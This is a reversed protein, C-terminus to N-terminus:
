LKTLGEVRPTCPLEQVFATMPRIISDGPVPLALSFMNYKNQELHPYNLRLTGAELRINKDGLISLVLM